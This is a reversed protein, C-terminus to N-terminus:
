GFALRGDAGCFLKEPDALQRRGDLSVGLKDVFLRAVEVRRQQEGLQVQARVVHVTGRPAERRNGICPPELALEFRGELGILLDQRDSWGVLMRQAVGRSQRDRLALGNFPAPIKQRQRVLLNCPIVHCGGAVGQRFRCRQVWRVGRQAFADKLHGDGCAIERTRTLM